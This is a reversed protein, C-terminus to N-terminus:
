LLGQLHLALRHFRLAVLDASFLSFSFFLLLKFASLLLPFFLVPPM